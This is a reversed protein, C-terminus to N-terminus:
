EQRYALGVAAMVLGVFFGIGGLVVAWQALVFTSDRQGILGAFSASMANGINSTYSNGWFYALASLVAIGAGALILQEAQVRTVSPQKAPSQYFVNTQANFSVPEKKTLDTACYKCFKSLASISKGCKSCNMTTAVSVPASCSPCFKADADLDASCKSCTSPMELVGEVREAVQLSQVSSVPPADKGVSCKYCFTRDDRNSQGCSGCTWM